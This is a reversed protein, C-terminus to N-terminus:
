RVTFKDALILILFRLFRHKKRIKRLRKSVFLFVGFKWQMKAKNRSDNPSQLKIQCIFYYNPYSILNPKSIWKMSNLHNKSQKCSNKLQSKQMMHSLVSLSQLATSYGCKNLAYYLIM